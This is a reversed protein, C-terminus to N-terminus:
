MRIECGQRTLVQGNEDLEFVGFNGVTLGGHRMEQELLAAQRGVEVNLRTGMPLSQLYAM